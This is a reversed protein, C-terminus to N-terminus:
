PALKPPRRPVVFSVLLDSLISVHVHGTLEKTPHGTRNAVVLETLHERTKTLLSQLHRAHGNFGDDIDNNNNSSSSSSFSTSSSTIDLAIAPSSSAMRNAKAPASTTAATTTSTTNTPTRIIPPPVSITGPQYDHLQGCNRIWVKDTPTGTRSGKSEMAKVVEHGQVVKGFV